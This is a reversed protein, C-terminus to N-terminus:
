HQLATLTANQAAQLAAPTWGLTLRISNITIRAAQGLYIGSSIDHAYQLTVSTNGVLRMHWALMTQWGTLSSFGTNRIEQQGVSASLNWRADAPHWSWTGMMRTNTGVAYGISDMSSRNYSALYTQSQLSYGVSGSAIVQSAIPAGSQQQLSTTYSGGGSGRFFWHEGMMRGLYVQAMSTYANQYVNSTRAGTVGVGLTTRPSLSYDMAVGANLGITRPVPYSQAPVGATSGIRDQGAATIGSFEVSLRETVQYSLSAQAAYTFIRNGLLLGVAPNSAPTLASAATSGTLLSAAQSSSFQGISQSAAVDSIPVPSQAAISQSTPEFLYDGLTEYIANGSINFTLKPTLEWSANARLSHGFASLSSYNESRNYTGTYFVSINTKDGPHYQWGASASLGYSVDYGLNAAAPLITNTYTIPYASSVYSSYANVGYLHIGEWSTNEFAALGNMQQGHLVCGAM